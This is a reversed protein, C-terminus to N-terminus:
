MSRSLQMLAEEKVKESRKSVKLADSASPCGVAGVFRYYRQRFSDKELLSRLSFYYKAYLSSSIYLDWKVNRLFLLELRNIADLSFQPYVSAFEINWSSLDQWVKSAMLLGAMFIPKWTSAMFPVKAVEMLREIYILCVISCESSLQVKKFLQHAFEYIEFESPIHVARKQNRRVQRTSPSPPSSRFVTQTAVEYDARLKQHSCAFGGSVMPLRIMTCKYRSRVFNDEKFLERMEISFLGTPDRNNRAEFRREIKLIHQHLIMSVRRLADRFNPRTITGMTAPIAQSSRESAPKYSLPKSKDNIRPTYADCSPRFIIQPPAKSISTRKSRSSSDKNKKRRDKQKSNSNKSTKSKLISNTASSTRSISGRSLSNEYINYTTTATTTKAPTPADRKGSQPLHIVHCQPAAEHPDLQTFTPPGINENNGEENDNRSLLASIYNSVLSKSTSANIYTSSYAISGPSVSVVDAIHMLNALVKGVRDSDTITNGMIQDLRFHRAIRIVSSWYESSSILDSQKLITWKIQKNSEQSQFLKNLASLFLDYYQHIDKLGGESHNQIYSSWDSIFLVVNNTTSSSSYSPSSRIQTIINLVSQLTPQTLPPQLFVLHSGKPVRGSEVLNLKKENRFKKEESKTNIREQFDTLIKRIHENQAFHQRVPSLIKNMEIILLNRLETESIKQSIFAQHLDDYGYFKHEGLQLIIKKNNIQNTTNTQQHVFIIQKLFALCTDIDASTIKEQTTEESDYMFIKNKSSSWFSQMNNHANNHYTTSTIAPNQEVKQSCFEGTLM